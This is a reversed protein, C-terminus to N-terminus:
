AKANLTVLVSETGGAWVLVFCGWYKAGCSGLNLGKQRSSVWASRPKRCFRLKIFNFAWHLAPFRSVRIESFDDNRCKSVCFILFPPIQRWVKNGVRLHLTRLM